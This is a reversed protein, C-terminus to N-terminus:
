VASNSLLEGIQMRLDNAEAIILAERYRELAEESRGSDELVEGLLIMLEVMSVPDGADSMINLSETYHHMSTEADNM